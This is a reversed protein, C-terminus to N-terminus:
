YVSGYWRYKLVFKLILKYTFVKDRTHRYVHTNQIWANLLTTEHHRLLAAKRMHEESFETTVFDADV